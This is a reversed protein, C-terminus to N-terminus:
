ESSPPILAQLVALLATERSIILIEEVESEFLVKMCEEVLVRGYEEKRMDRRWGVETIAVRKAGVGTVAASLANHIAGALMGLDEGSPPVIHIVYQVSLRGPGTTACEGPILQGFKIVWNHCERDLASGAARLVLRAIHTDCTLGPTNPIILAASTCLSPDGKLLSLRKGHFTSSHIPELSPKSRFLLSLGAAAALFFAPAAIKTLRSYDM